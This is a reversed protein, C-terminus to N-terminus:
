LWSEKKMEFRNLGDTKGLIIEIDQRIQNWQNKEKKVQKAGPAQNKSSKKKISNTNQCGALSTIVIFFVIFIGRM